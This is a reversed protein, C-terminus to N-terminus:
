QYIQQNHKIWGGPKRNSPDSHTWHVIGGKENWQYEGYFEISDGVKLNDIRPALDINHAILITQKLNVKVLIRQHRSGQNDDSLLKIVEGQGTLWINGKKNKFASELESNYNGSKADSQASNKTQSDNHDVSLDLQNKEDGLLIQMLLLFTIVILTLYKINKM